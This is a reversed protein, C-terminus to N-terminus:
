SMGTRNQLPIENITENQKYVKKEDEIKWYM